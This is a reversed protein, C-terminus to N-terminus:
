RYQSIEGEVTYHYSAGQNAISIVQSVRPAQQAVPDRLWQNLIDPHISFLSRLNFRDLTFGM